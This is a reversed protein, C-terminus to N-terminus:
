APVLDFVAIEPYARIRMPIGVVGLGRSVYLRGPKNPEQYWGRLYRTRLGLYRRTVFPLNIQGGHTHGALTLCPYASLSRFISPNHTMAITPASPPVERFAAEPDPTGAWSDDVGVLHLGTELRLSTNTLMRVSISALAATIAPAGHGGDCFYDHNGLVGYLGLPALLAKLPQVCSAIYESSHTVFDGTLAVLDPQLANARAVVQAIYGESVCWSRHLDSLQVLRLSGRLGPIPVTHRTVQVRTRESLGQCLGVTSLLAISHRIFRRRSLARGKLPRDRRNQSPSDTPTQRTDM